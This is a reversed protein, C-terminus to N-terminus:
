DSDKQDKLQDKQEDFKAVDRKDGRILEVSFQEPPPPVAAKASRAQMTRGGKAVHAVVAPTKPLNYLERNQVPNIHAREEDLPNRLSLQIKGEQMALTLKQADDPTVLLTIVSAQQPDVQGNRQLKQGAALVQVNELVTTAAPDNGAQAPTGTALVDVRTGATVFGAVSTVDNVKVSVARMGPPILAPLGSGMRSSALQGAVVPAGKMLPVIAARGVVEPISSFSGPPLENRRMKILRLDGGELKTGAPVDSSTAVITTLAKADADNAAGTLMKYISTSVFAALAMAILGIFMLRNRTM